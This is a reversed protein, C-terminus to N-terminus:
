LGSRCARVLRRGVAPLFGFLVRPDDVPINRWSVANAGPLWYKLDQWQRRLAFWVHALFYCCLPAHQFDAQPLPARAILPQDNIVDRLAAPVDVGAYRGWGFGSPTRPHFELLMIRGSEADQVWDFGCLGHFGTAAAVRAVLAEMGPPHVMRRM